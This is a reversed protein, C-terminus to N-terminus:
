RTAVAVPTMFRITDNRYDAFEVENESIIRFMLGDHENREHISDNHIVGTLRDYHFPAIKHTM